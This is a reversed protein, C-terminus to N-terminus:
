AAAQRRMANLARITFECRSLARREYADASTCKDSLRCDPEALAIDSIARFGWGHFV